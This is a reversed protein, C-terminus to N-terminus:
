RYADRVKEIIRTLKKDTALVKEFKSLISSLGVRSVRAMVAIKRVMLATDHKLLYLYVKRATSRSRKHLLEEPSVKMVGCVAKAITEPNVATIGRVDPVSQRDPLKKKALRERMECFFEEGGVISYKGYVQEPEIEQYRMIEHLNEIGGAETLVRGTTTMEDTVKGLYIRHSSWPYQEPREVLGARVPNLHIYALATILYETNEILVAKYRSQFVSGVLHHKIRFWNAYSSQFAHMARSINAAPTEILLHYHNPMLCWGHLILRYKRVALQLRHLFERRDDDCTFIADRRHGRNIVHYLAHPYTIRLPRATTREM